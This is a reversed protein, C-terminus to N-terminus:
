PRGLEVRRPPSPGVDLPIKVDGESEVAGRDPRQDKAGEVRLAFEPPLQGIVREDVSIAEVGIGVAAGDVAAGGDEVDLGVRRRRGGQLCRAVVTSWMVKM